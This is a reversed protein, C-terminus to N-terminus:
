GEVLTEKLVCSAREILRVVGAGAIVSGGKYKGPSSILAMCYVIVLNCQSDSGKQIVSVTGNGHYCITIIM